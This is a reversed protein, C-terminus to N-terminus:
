KRKKIQNNINDLEINYRAICNLSKEIKKGYTEVGLKNACKIAINSESNIWIEVVKFIMIFITLTIIVNLVISIHCNLWEMIEIIKSIVVNNKAVSWMKINSNLVFRYAIYLLIFYIIICIQKIISFNLLSKKQKLNRYRFQEEDLKNEM